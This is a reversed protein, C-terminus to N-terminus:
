TFRVERAGLLAAVEGFRGEVVKKLREGPREFLDLRVEMVKGSFRSEWAGAAIGGVLALGLGDGAPTYVRRQLGPDVLRERGDAAYGMTYCDWKPLIDVAEPDPAEAAEFAERDETPLLYGSEPEVTEM